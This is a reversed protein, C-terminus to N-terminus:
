RDPYAPPSAFNAIPLPSSLGVLGTEPTILLRTSALPVIIASLNMLTEAWETLEKLGEEIWLDLETTDYTANGTDQLMQECLDRIEAYSRTSTTYTM